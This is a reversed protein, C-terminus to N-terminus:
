AAVLEVHAPLARGRARLLEALHVAFPVMGSYSVILAVNGGGTARMRADTVGPLGLVAKRVINVDSFSRIESLRLEILETEGLAQPSTAAPMTTEATM